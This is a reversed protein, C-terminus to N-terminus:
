ADTFEIFVGSIIAVEGVTDGADSLERLIEGIVLDDVAFDALTLSVSYEKYLFATTPAAINGSNPTGQWTAPDGGEGTATTKISRYNCLWRFNATATNPSKVKIILSPSSGDIMEQPVNDLQWWFGDDVSGDDIVGVRRASLDNADEITAPEERALFGPDIGWAVEIRSTTM